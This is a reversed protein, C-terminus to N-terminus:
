RRCFIRELVNDSSVAHRDQVQHSPGWQKCLNDASSLPICTATLISNFSVLLSLKRKMKALTTWSWMRYCLLWRKLFNKLFNVVGLNRTTLERAAKQYLSGKSGAITCFFNEALTVILNKLRVMRYIKYTYQLGQTFHGSEFLCYIPKWSWNNSICTLLIASHLMRCYKAGNQM